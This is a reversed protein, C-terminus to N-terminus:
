TATYPTAIRAFTRGCQCPESIRRVAQGTRYRILPLAQATLTTVILEGMHDKETVIENSGFNALEILFHDEQVHQATSDACQYFLGANGLDPPAFLNFVKTATREEIHRQLMNFINTENICFIKTMPYDIIDRGIAQFQIILQMVLQPTSILTDISFLETIELWKRWDTGFPIVTAGISELAYLTDLFKSDTLDGQIGVVSGRLVNAAMLARIMLEVQNRIDGKTYLKILQGNRENIHNVRVVNSLPLTLFDFPDVRFFDDRTVFPLKRVDKLSQIDEPTVGHAKYKRRYFSSKDYAWSVIKKLRELQLLEIEERRGCEIQEDAFM